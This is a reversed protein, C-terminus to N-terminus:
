SAVGVATPTIADDLKLRRMWAARHRRVEAPTPIRGLESKLALASGVAFGCTIGRNDVLDPLHEQCWAAAAHWRADWDIRGDPKRGQVRQLEAIGDQQEAYSTRFASM